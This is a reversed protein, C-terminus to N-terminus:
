GLLGLTSEALNRENHIKSRRNKSDKTLTNNAMTYVKGVPAPLAFDIAGGLMDVAGLTGNRRTIKTDFTYNKNGLVGFGQTYVSGVLAKRLFEPLLNWHGSGSGPLFELM